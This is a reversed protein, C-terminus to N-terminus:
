KARGRRNVKALEVDVQAIMAPATINLPSSLRYITTLTPQRQGLELMSIFNRELEAEFGLQEQTLGAEKRLRRLVEGFAIAIEL